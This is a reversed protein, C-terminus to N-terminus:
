TSSGPVFTATSGMPSDGGQSLDVDMSMMSAGGESEFERMAKNKRYISSSKPQEMPINGSGASLNSTRKKLKPAGLGRASATAQKSSAKIARSPKARVGSASAGSHISSSHESLM